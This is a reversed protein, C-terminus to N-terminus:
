RHVSRRESVRRFMSALTDLLSRFDAARPVLARVASPAFTRRLTVLCIILGVTYSLTAGMAAGNIGALPILIADLAIMLGVSVAFSQLLLRPDGRAAIGRALIFQGAFCIGGPLLLLAAAVAPGYGDGFFVSVALPIALAVGAAAVIASAVGVRFM